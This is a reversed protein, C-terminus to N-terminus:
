KLMSSSSSQHITQNATIIERVSSMGSAICVGISELSSSHKNNNDNAQNENEGNNNIIGLWTDLGSNLERCRSSICM